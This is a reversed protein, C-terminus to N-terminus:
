ARVMGRLLTERLPFKQRILISSCVLKDLYIVTEKASIEIHPRMYTADHSSMDLIKM